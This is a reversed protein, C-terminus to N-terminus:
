RGTMAQELEVNGTALQGALEVLAAGVDEEAHREIDSGIRQQRQHQGLDATILRAFEDMGETIRMNVGIVELLGAELKGAGGARQRGQPDVRFDGVQQSEAELIETEIGIIWMGM